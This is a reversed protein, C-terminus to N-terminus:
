ISCSVSEVHDCFDEFADFAPDRYLIPVFVRAIWQARITRNGFLREFNEVGLRPSEQSESRPADTIM